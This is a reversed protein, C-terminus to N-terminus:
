FTVRAGLRVVRGPSFGEVNAVEGGLTNTTGNEVLGNILFDTLDLFGSDNAVFFQPHNLANDLTARFEVAYRGARAITRYLGLNVVWTGPGTLLGNRANGISGPEPLKFAGLNFFNQRDRSGKPDGVVDPRWAETFSNNTDYAKGTNAPFIPSTGYAFFPTLHQGSRAQFITAVTWGGVLRDAWRPLTSFFRQQRGIPIQWTSNLLLRHKVIDPDPGRDLSLDYPAYQVVGLSSNGLDPATSESGALTYAADFALGRTL